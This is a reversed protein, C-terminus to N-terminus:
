ARPEIPGLKGLPSTGERGSAMLVGVGYGLLAGAVIVNGEGDGVVSDLLYGVLAGGLLGGLARIALRRRSLGPWWRVARGAGLWIAVVGIVRLTWLAVLGAGRSGLGLRAVLLATQLHLFYAALMGSWLAGVMWLVLLGRSAPKM